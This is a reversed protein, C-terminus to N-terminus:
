HFKGTWASNHEHEDKLKCFLNAICTQKFWMNAPDKLNENLIYSM